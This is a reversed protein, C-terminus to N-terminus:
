GRATSEARSLAVELVVLLADRVSGTHRADFVILPVHESVDLAWRVEDLDHHVAGDFANVAVAFPIDKHEFYDVAAYCDDLRRTDVIVLGGLAGEVLDDWMFGFRDQGPTGFLYLKLTPDITLCGFDMAVTTTTKRPTHSLDDVGAAVETIAAETTLPRIESIAGVATTKGVGFGGAIVLKVPVPPQEVATVSHRGHTPSPVSAM